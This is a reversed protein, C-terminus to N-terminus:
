PSTCMQILADVDETYDMAQAHLVPDHAFLQPCPRDRDAGHTDFSM